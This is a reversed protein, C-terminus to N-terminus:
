SKTKLEQSENELSIVKQLTRFTKEYRHFDLFRFKSYDETIIEIYKHKTEKVIKGQNAERITEVPIVVQDLNENISEQTRKVAESSPLKVHEPFSSTNRRGLTKIRVMKSEGEDKDRITTWRDDKGSSNGRAWLKALNSGIGTVGIVHAKTYNDVEIGNGKFPVVNKCGEEM